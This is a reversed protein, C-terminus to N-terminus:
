SGLADSRKIFYMSKLQVLITVAGIDYMQGDLM